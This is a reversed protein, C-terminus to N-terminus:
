TEWLTIGREIEGWLTPNDERLKAEEDADHIIASLRRGGTYRDTIESVITKQTTTIYLDIDSQPTDEGRTTSGFLIVRTTHHKLDDTLQRLEFINLLTKLQRAAPNHLNFRYLTIKGRRQEEILGLETLTRLASNASGVSIGAEQATERQFLSRNPDKALTKFAEMTTNSFLPNM